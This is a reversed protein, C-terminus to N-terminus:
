TTDVVEKADVGGESDAIVWIDIGGRESSWWWPVVASSPILRLCQELQELCQRDWSIVLLIAVQVTYLIDSNFETALSSSGCILIEEVIAQPVNKSSSRASVNSETSMEAYVCIKSKWMRYASQVHDNSIAWVLPVWRPFERRKIRVVDNMADSYDFLKEVGELQQRQLLSERM